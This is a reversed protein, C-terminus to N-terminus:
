WSKKLAGITFLLTALLPRRLMESRWLRLIRSLRRICIQTIVLHCRRKGLFEQHFKLKKSKIHKKDPNPENSEELRM